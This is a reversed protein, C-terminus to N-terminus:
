PIKIRGAERDLIRQLKPIVAGAIVEHGKENPYRSDSLVLDACKIGNESLHGAWQHHVPVLECALDAAVIRLSAYYISVAEMDYPDDFTQGTALVVVPDFRERALRIIQVMNEQFESRYVSQFADDIGFHLLLVDPRYIDIDEHFTRVGDFTTERFRSRSIVEVGAGSFAEEMIRVYGRTVGHGAPTSGGRVLIRV